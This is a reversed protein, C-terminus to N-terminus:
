RTAKGKKRLGLKKRMKEAKELKSLTEDDFEVVAAGYYGCDPCKYM